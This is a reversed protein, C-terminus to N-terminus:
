IYRTGIGTRSLTWRVEAQETSSFELTIAKSKQPGSVKAFFFTEILRPTV